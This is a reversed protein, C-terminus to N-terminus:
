NGHHVASLEALLIDKPNYIFGSFGSLYNGSNNHIIGGFGARTPNGICNGDVNLVACITGNNNWRVLRDSPTSSASNQLCSSILDASNDM